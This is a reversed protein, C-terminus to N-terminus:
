YLLNAQPHNANPVSSIDGAGGVTVLPGYANGGSISFHGGAGPALSTNRIILNLGGQIDASRYNLVFTNGEVREGGGSGTIRVGAGQTTPNGNETISNDRILVGGGADVLVGCNANNGITCREVSGVFTAHIGNQTNGTTTCDSIRTRQSARIGSLFNSNAVCRSISNYIFTANIGYGGTSGNATCDLVSSSAGVVINDGTNASSTCRQVIANDGANIGPGTNQSSTCDIIEGGFTAIGATPGINASARINVVQPAICSTISVGGNGWGRVSGNRVIVGRRAGSSVVGAGSGAGSGVLEHGDLDLTVGDSAITVGSTGLGGLSGGLRASCPWDLSEPVQSIILSVQNGASINYCDPFLRVINDEIINAAGTVLLGVQGSASSGVVTNNRITSRPGPCSLGTGTAMNILNDAILASPGNVLIGRTTNNSVNCALATSNANLELGTANGSAVCDRATSASGLRFGIGGNNRATCNAVTATDGLDFGNSGCSEVVLRDFDSPGAAAATIGHSPFSLIRGNLVRARAGTSISIGHGAGAVGTLTFGNLDITANVAAAIRISNKGSVGSIGSALYYSGSQSIVFQNLADGPTNAANIITRPEVETLTKYSPAVSGVPPDLPGANLIAASGLLALALVSTCALATRNM